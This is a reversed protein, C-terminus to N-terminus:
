EIKGCFSCEKYFMSEQSTLEAENWTVQKREPKRKIVWTHQGSELYEMYKQHEIKQKKNM